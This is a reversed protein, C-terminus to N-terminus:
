LTYRIYREAVYTDHLMDAALKRKDLLRMECQRLSSIYAHRFINVTAAKGTEREMIEAIVQGLRASTLPQTPDSPMVLLWGSDNYAARWHRLVRYLEPTADFVAQGYTVQTKYSNLIFTAKGNALVCYNTTDDKRVSPMADVFRMPSYDLRKPPIMTYLCAIVYEQYARWTSAVEYAAKLSDPVELIEAWSLWKREEDETLEQREGEESAKTAYAMMKTTYFSM